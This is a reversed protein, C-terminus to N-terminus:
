GESVWAPCPFHTFIDHLMKTPSKKRYHITKHIQISNLKAQSGNRAVLVFLLKMM